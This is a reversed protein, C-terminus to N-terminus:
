GEAGDFSKWRALTRDANLQAFQQFRLPSPFYLVFEICTDSQYSHPKFYPGLTDRAREDKFVAHVLTEYVLCTKDLVVGAMSDTSHGQYSLYFTPIGETSDIADFHQHLFRSMFVINNPNLKDAPYKKQSILHCREPKQLFLMTSDDRDILRLKTEPTLEVASFLSDSCLDYEPSGDTDGEQKLYAESVVRTLDSCADIKIMPLLEVVIDMDSEAKRKRFIQPLRKVKTEFDEAQPKEEFMLQFMLDPSRGIYRIGDEHNDNRVKAHCEEALVYLNYRCGSRLKSFKISGTV